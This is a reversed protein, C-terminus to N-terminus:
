VGFDTTGSRTSNTQIRILLKISENPKYNIPLQKIKTIQLQMETIRISLGILENSTAQYASTPGMCCM